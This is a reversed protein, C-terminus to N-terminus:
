RLVVHLTKELSDLINGITQNTDEDTLTRNDARLELNFAVSKKGPAVGTGRYVDFLKVSRLLEGGASLICESLQGVTITEDCVLALDRSVTPFKPLPKYLSEPALHAQLKTFNLEACYVETDMNYNSLVLPHIQGIVGIEEGDVVIAACRGPHYSPNDSKACYAAPLAKVASLLADVEGKLSFFTEGAGYTGLVMIKPEEPLTQGEVPLYIKAIEYLKASKNHYAYNRALIELMSPLAITRMVSTDEGLPNLLKVTKRLPSNEPIRVMDFISPSVFSYTIIESYGMSRATSGATRELTAQKSYGGQTTAGRLMTTPMTNYGYLRGIEEALDAMSRLDSRWSPVKVIDGDVAIELRNLYRIMEERTCSIGLLANIRDVELPLEVPPEVFNIVDITGDLVEGAGLLEVLECARDVAPVTNM